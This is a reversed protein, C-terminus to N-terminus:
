APRREIRYRHRRRAQGRFRGADCAVLGTHYSEGRFDDRGPVDPFYPVSLVGTAAVFFQTRFETGDGVKVTWKGSSEDYVASTVKAGLRIHRRLDFRDVM